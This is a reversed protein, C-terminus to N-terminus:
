RHGDLEKKVINQVTEVFEFAEDHWDRVENPDFRVLDAYDGKQRNDFLRDYLQGLEPDVLLSDSLERNCFFLGDLISGTLRAPLKKPFISPFGKTFCSRKDSIYYRNGRKPL